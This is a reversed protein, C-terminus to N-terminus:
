DAYKDGQKKLLTIEGYYTEVSLRTNAETINILEETSRGPLGIIYKKDAWPEQILSVELEGLHFSQYLYVTAAM